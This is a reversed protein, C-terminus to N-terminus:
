ITDHLHGTRGSGRGRASRRWAPLCSGAQKARTSSIAYQHVTKSLAPLAARGANTGHIGTNHAGAPQMKVILQGQCMSSRALHESNERDCSDLSISRCSPPLAPGMDESSWTPAHQAASHQATSHQATSHQATASPPTLVVTQLSTSCCGSSTATSTAARQHPVGQQCALFCPWTTATVCAVGPCSM